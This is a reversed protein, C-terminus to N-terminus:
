LATSKRLVNNIPSQHSADNKDAKVVYGSSGFDVSAMKM